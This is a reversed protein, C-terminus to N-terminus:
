RTRERNDVMHVADQLVGELSRVASEWTYDQAIRARGTTSAHERPREDHLAKLSLDAFDHVSDAILLGCSADLELGEAGVSTAVVPKGLAIAELIKIRTGGGVRFPAIVASARAVHSLADDVYGLASVPLAPPLSAAFGHSGKGILELRVKSDRQLIEPFISTCFYRMADRNPAYGFHGTFNLLHEDVASSAERLLLGSDVGNPVTYARIGKFRRVFMERELESVATVAFFRPFLNREFRLASRYDLWANLRKKAGETTQWTRRAVVSPVNQTNLIWPVGPKSLRVYPAMAESEVVVADFDSGLLGALESTMEGFHFESFYERKYARAIRALQRKFRGTPPIRVPRAVVRLRHFMRASTRADGGDDRCVWWVEHRRALSGYLYYM